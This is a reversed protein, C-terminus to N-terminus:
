KLCVELFGVEKEDHLWVARRICNEKPPDSSAALRVSCDLNIKNMEGDLNIKKIKESDIENPFINKGDSYALANKVLYDSCALLEANQNETKEREVLRSAMNDYIILCAFLMTSIILSAAIADLLFTQGKLRSRGNL